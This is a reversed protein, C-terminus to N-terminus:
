ARFLGSEVGYARGYADQGSGGRAGEPSRWERGSAVRAVSINARQPGSVVGNRPAKLARPYFM